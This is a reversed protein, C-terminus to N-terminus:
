ARQGGPATAPRHALSELFGVVRNGWSLRASERARMQDLGSAWALPAADEQSILANVLENEDHAPFFSPRTDGGVSAVVGQHGVIDSLLVRPAVAGAELVTVPSAEVRSPFVVLHAQSMAAVCDSRTSRRRRVVGEGEAMVAALRREATRQGEPGMIVLTRTGGARRYRHYAKVLLPLDRFGYNSGVCVIAGAAEPVKRADATALADEFGSDLVNHIVDSTPSTPHAPIAESIRLLGCARRYSVHTGARLAHVLGWESPGAAIPQWVWANQPALVFRQRPFRGHRPLNRALLPVSGPGGQLVRHRQEADRVNALFVGGGGSWRGDESLHFSLSQVAM